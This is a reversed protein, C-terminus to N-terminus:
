ISIGYVYSFKNVIAVVVTKVWLRVCATRNGASARKGSSTLITMTRVRPRSRIIEGISFVQSLKKRLPGSNLSSKISHVRVVFILGALFNKIILYKSSVLM